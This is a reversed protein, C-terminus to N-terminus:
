LRLGMFGHCRCLSSQGLHLQLSLSTWNLRGLHYQPPLLWPPASLDVPQSKLSPCPPELRLLHSSLVPQAPSSDAWPLDVICRTPLMPPSSPSILLLLSLVSPSPLAPLPNIFAMGPWYQVCFCDLFPRRPRYMVPLNTLFSGRPWRSVPLFSQFLCVVSSCERQGVRFLCLLHSHSPSKLSKLAPHRFLCQAPHCFLYPAIM